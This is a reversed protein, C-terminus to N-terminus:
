KRGEVLIDKDWVGRTVVKGKANYFVGEGNRVDEAWQGVFTSGDPFHYTGRGSRMDEVYEGEYWAGDNWHFEGVGDKRNDEWEGQYRSGTSLLAVGNGNAKGNKIEGVYYIENGERSKFTLYNPGSSRSLKQTLNRVQMEAKQLAFRLSDYRLPQNLSPNNQAVPAPAITIPLATSPRPTFRPRRSLLTDLRYETRVVGNVFATRDALLAESFLQSDPVIAAYGDLAAEYEGAFVLSDVASLQRYDALQEAYNTALATQEDLVSQQRAAWGLALVAAVAAAICLIVLASSRKSVSM